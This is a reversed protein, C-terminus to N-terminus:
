WNLENLWTQSKKVGHVAAWSGQGDGTRISSNFLQFVVCDRQGEEEAGAVRAVINSAKFTAKPSAIRELTPPILLLLLLPRCLIPHSFPMVSEIFTLRPSSQSNTISLSAQCAAVWPTAFLWVRSLSQVSCDWFCVRRLPCLNLSGVSKSPM